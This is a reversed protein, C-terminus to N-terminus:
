CKAKPREGLEWYGVDIWKGFKWGVETFHAVKKFGLREHLAVSAANPLAIGGMVRHFGGERLRTILDAYLPIGLGRGCYAGDLYITSEVSYRYAVRARWATAYAYGVVTGELECVLWPYKATVEAIRGQMTEVSVAEEEFTITSELVYRNYISCIAAADATWAERHITKMM